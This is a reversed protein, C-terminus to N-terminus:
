NVREPYKIVAKENTWDKKILMEKMERNLIRFGILERIRQEIPGAGEFIDIGKQELEAAAPPGIRAILVYDTDSLIDAIKAINRGQHGGCSHGECAPSVDRDEIETVEGNIENVDAIIFFFAHGFHTDVNVGDSSAIAIRFISGKGM